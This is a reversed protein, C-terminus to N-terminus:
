FSDPFNAFHKNVKEEDPSNLLPMWRRLFPRELLLQQQPIKRTTNHVMGNGTRELWALAQDYIIEM